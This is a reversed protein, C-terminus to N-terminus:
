EGETELFRGQDREYALVVPIISQPGLMEVLEKHSMSDLRDRISERMYETLEKLYEVSKNM